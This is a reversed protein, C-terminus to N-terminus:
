ERLPSENIRTDQHSKYWDTLLKRLEPGLVGFETEDLRSLGHALSHFLCSGDGPKWFVGARALYTNGEDAGLIDKFKNRKGNPHDIRGGNYHPCLATEHPGDCKERMECVVAGDAVKDKRASTRM